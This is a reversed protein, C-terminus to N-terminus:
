LYYYLKGDWWILSVDLWIRVPPCSQQFFLLVETLRSLNWGYHVRWCRMNTVIECNKIRFLAACL